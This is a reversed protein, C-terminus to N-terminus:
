GAVMWISPTEQAVIEMGALQMGHRLRELDAPFLVKYCGESDASTLHLLVRGVVAAKTADKAFVVRLGTALAEENMGTLANKYHGPGIKWGYVLFVEKCSTTPTSM